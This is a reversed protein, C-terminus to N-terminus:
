RAGNGQMLAIVTEIAQRWCDKVDDTAEEGLQEYITELLVEKVVPYHSKNVGYKRHQDGLKKLGVVLHDPRSLGHIVGGLMHTLMRGQDLMNSKFLERVEPAREFVRDYFRMAFKDEEQLLLDLTAQVELNVDPITFGLVEYIEFLDTKGKLSVMSKIGLHLTHSPLTNLFQESILINTDLEKNQAQIRSTINMSDGVVCFQRLSAHGLYGLFAPGFHLGIGVKFQTDFDRLELKNLREVAYQMGLAARIADLCAKQPDNETSGFIGIIEDGAYQYIIGNNIVIPDGTAQFFKDLMYALDFDPHDDAIQTFNRMDCFLIALSRQDGKEGEFEEMQLHSIEASSWVLRQIVVDGQVRSQCALRISPDWNRKNGLIREKKSIRSLNNIGEIIRVRCTTCLGNGGCEHLHPIKNDISVQLLTNGITTPITQNMAQYTVQPLEKHFM